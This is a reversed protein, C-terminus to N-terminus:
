PKKTLAKIEKNVAPLGVRHENIEKVRELVIIPADAKTVVLKKTGFFYPEDHWFQKNRNLWKITYAAKSKAKKM